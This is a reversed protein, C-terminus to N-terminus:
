VRVGMQYLTCRSSAAIQCSMLYDPRTQIDDDIIPTPFATAPYSSVKFGHVVFVPDDANAPGTENKSASEKTM